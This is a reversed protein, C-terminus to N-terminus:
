FCIYARGPGAWESDAKPGARGPGSSKEYNELHMKKPMKSGKEPIKSSNEFFFRILTLKM